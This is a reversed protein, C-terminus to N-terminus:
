CCDHAEHRFREFDDLVSKPLIGRKKLRKRIENSISFFLMKKLELVKEKIAAKIFEDESEFGFEPAIEKILTADEKELIFQKHM